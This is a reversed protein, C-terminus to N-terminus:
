NLDSFNWFSAKEPQLVDPVKGDEEQPVLTVWSGMLPTHLSSLCPQNERNFKGRKTYSISWIQESILGITDSKNSIPYGNMM